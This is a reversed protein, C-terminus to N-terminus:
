KNRHYVDLYCVGVWTPYSIRVTFGDIVSATSRAELGKWTQQWHGAWVGRGSGPLGLSREQARGPQRGGGCGWM